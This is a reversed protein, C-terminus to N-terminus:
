GVTSNKGLWHGRSVLVAAGVRKVAPRWQERRAPHGQGNVPQSVVTYGQTLVRTEARSSIHSLEVFVARPQHFQGPSRCESLRM